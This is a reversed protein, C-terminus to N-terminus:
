LKARYSLSDNLGIARAGAAMLIAALLGFMIIPLWSVISALTEPLGSECILIYAASCVITALGLLGTVYIAIQRLRTKPMDVIAFKHYCVPMSRFFQKPFVILLLGLCLFSALFLASSAIAESGPDESLIKAFETEKLPGGIAIMIMLLLVLNILQTIFSRAILAGSNFHARSLEFDKGAKTITTGSLHYYGVFLIITLVAIGFEVFSFQDEPEELHEYIQELGILVVFYALSYVILRKNRLLKADTIVMRLSSLYNSLMLKRYM